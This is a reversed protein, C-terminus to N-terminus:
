SSTRSPAQVLRSLPPPIDPKAEMFDVREIGEAATVERIKDQIVREIMEAYMFRTDQRFFTERRLLIEYVRGFVPVALLWADFDEFGLTLANRLMLAFGIVTMGIIIGGWVPGFLTVYGLVLGCILALVLVFQFFPLPAPIECFRYSFFWSTGFPASCLDFTLRERRMRLYDRSSSLIGGERYGLRTLELGPVKRTELETEITKYFEDSSIKFNDILAYTPARIEEPKRKKWLGFM